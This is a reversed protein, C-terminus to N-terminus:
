TISPACFSHFSHFPLHLSGSDGRPARSAGPATVGPRGNGLAACTADAAGARGGSQTAQLSLVGARCAWCGGAPPQGGFGLHDRLGDRPSLALGGQLLTHHGSTLHDPRSAAALEAGSSSLKSKVRRQGRSLHGDADLVKAGQHLWAQASVQAQGESEPKRVRKEIQNM